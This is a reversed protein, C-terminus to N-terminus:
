LRRSPLQTIYTEALSRIDDVLVAGTFGAVLAEILTLHLGASLVICLFTVLCSWHRFLKWM